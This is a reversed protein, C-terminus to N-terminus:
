KRSFIVNKEKFYKQNELFFTMLRSVVSQQPSEKRCCVVGSMGPRRLLVKRRGNAPIVNYNQPVPRGCLLRRPIVKFVITLGKFILIRFLFVTPSTARACFRMRRITHARYLVNGCRILVRSLFSTLEHYHRSSKSISPM